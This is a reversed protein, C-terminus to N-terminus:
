NVWAGLLTPLIVFCTLEWVSPSQSLESFFCTPLPCAILWENDKGPQRQFSKRSGGCEANRGTEMKNDPLTCSSSKM